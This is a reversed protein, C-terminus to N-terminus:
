GAGSHTGFVLPSKLLIVVVGVGPAFSASNNPQVSYGPAKLLRVVINDVVRSGPIEVLKAASKSTWWLPSGLGGRTVPNVLCGAWGRRGLSGSM